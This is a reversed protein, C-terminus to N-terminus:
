ETTRKELRQVFLCAVERASPGRAASWTSRSRRAPRLAPDHRWRAVLRSVPSSSYAFGLARIERWLQLGNHCGAAWRRLLYDEYPDLCRERREFRRRRRAPPRGMRLYTYVTQRSVGVTRAIDAIDMGKARWAQIAEYTAVRQAHYRSSADEHRQRWPPMSRDGDVPTTGGDSM